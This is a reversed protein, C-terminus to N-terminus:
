KALLLGLFSFSFVQGPQRLETSQACSRDLPNGTQNETLACTQTSPWTGLPPWMLPLWVNINRKKEKERGEGTELFLYIFDKFFLFHFSPFYQIFLEIFNYTFIYM